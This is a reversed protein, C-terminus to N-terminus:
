MLEIIEANKINAPKLVKNEPIGEFYAKIARSTGGHSVLLINKDPYKEKIEDLLNWIRKCLIKVTEINYINTNKELDYTSDNKYFADGKIIKGELEGYGREMLEEKYIIPINTGESVLKATQKARILPSSIILDINLREFKERASIAQQRGNENLEIDTRGQMRKEKNWNTEGHRMLYIKM